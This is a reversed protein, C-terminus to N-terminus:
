LRLRWALPLLIWGWLSQIAFVAAAFPLLSMPLESPQVAGYRAGVHLTFVSGCASLILAIAALLTLGRVGRAIAAGILAFILVAAGMDVRLQDPVFRGYQTWLGMAKWGAASLGVVALMIAGARWTAGGARGLLAGGSLALACSALTCLAEWGFATGVFLAAQKRTDSSGPQAAKRHALARTQPPGFVAAAEDVDVGPLPTHMLLKLRLEPDAQWWAGYYIGAAAALNIMGILIPTLRRGGRSLYPRVSRSRRRRSRADYVVKVDLPSTTSMAHNVLGSGEKDEGQSQNRAHIVQM